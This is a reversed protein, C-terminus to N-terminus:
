LWMSQDVRRCCPWPVTTLALADTTDLRAVLRGGTASAQDLHLTKNAGPELEVPVVDVLQDELNLELRGKYPKDGFNSVEILTQYGIADLLSRRVQFQTIAQNDQPTGYGVM